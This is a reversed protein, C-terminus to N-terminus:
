WGCEVAITVIPTTRVTGYDDAVTDKTPGTALEGLGKTTGWRRINKANKITVSGDENDTCAGVFVWGRDAVIIRVDGIDLGKAESAKIYKEGNIEITNMRTTNRDQKKNCALKKSTM